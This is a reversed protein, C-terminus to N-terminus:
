IEIGAASHIQNHLVILFPIQLHHCPIFQRLFHLSCLYPLRAHASSGKQRNRTLKNAMQMIVTDLPLKHVAAYKFLKAALDSPHMNKMEEVELNLGAAMNEETHFHTELMHARLLTVFKEETPFM